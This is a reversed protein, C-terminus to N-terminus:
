EAPGPSTTSRKRPWPLRSRPAPPGDTVLRIDRALDEDIEADDVNDTKADTSASAPQVDTNADAPQLNAAHYVHTIFKDFAPETTWSKAISTWGVKASLKTGGNPRTQEEFYGNTGLETLLEDLRARPVDVHIERDFALAARGRLRDYSNRAVQAVRGIMSGPGTPEPLSHGALKLVARAQDRRGEPHPYRIALRAVSWTKRDTAVSPEDSFDALDVREPARGSDLPLICDAGSVEYDLQAARYALTGDEARPIRPTLRCGTTAALLIGLLGFSIAHTPNRM